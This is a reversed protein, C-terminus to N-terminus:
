REGVRYQAVKAGLTLDSRVRIAGTPILYRQEDDSLVYLLDSSSPDFMKKTHYSQNGGSTALNVVYRGSRNRFTTTKVQVRHLSDGDDVVLDYPQSDILPLCVSWGQRGFWAIADTLGILGQERPNHRWITDPVRRDAKALHALHHADGSGSAPPDPASPDPFLARNSVVDPEQGAGVPSPEHLRGRGQSV